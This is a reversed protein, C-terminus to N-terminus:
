SYLHEILADSIKLGLTKEKWLWQGNANIELFVIEDKPTVILDIAGYILGLSKVLNICKEETKLDLTDIEQRVKVKHQDRRWDTNTEKNEQSFIKSVFVRTGLITVRLEYKKEVKEQILCPTRRLSERVEPTNSVPTTFVSVYEDETEEIMPHTLTKYICRHSAAFTSFEEPDNTVLTEPIKFGAKQALRLQWLKNDARRNNEPHNVWTINESLNLCLDSIVAESERAMFAVASSQASRDHKSIYPKRYWVSDYKACTSKGNGFSLLYKGDKYSLFLGEGMCDPNLRDYSLGKEKLIDEVHDAHTDSKSTVILARKM